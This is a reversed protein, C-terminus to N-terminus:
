GIDAHRYGLVIPDQDRFRTPTDELDPLHELTSPSLYAGIIPTRKENTIYKCVGVNPGHFLTLEVRCVQPQYWVVLGVIGQAVGAGTMLILSCVVNYGLRNCCYAQNNIKTETMIM